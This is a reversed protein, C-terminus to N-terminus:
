SRSRQRDRLRDRLRIRNRVLNFLRPEDAELTVTVAFNQMIFSEPAWRRDCRVILYYSDGYEAKSKMFEWSSRQLTSSALVKSSPQLNCKASGQFAGQPKEGTRGYYAREQEELARYANEIEDVSKGRILAYQMRVGLYEARRRRVPPDFALSVTIRKKGNADRFEDFIPVEFIAFTDIPIAGQYYMTPRRDGSQLAFDDDIKGYGCVKRIGEKGHRPAILDQAPMPVTASAALISRVLNAQPEEGLEDRLKHWVAAATRAVLPAAMSTGNDFAFLQKTPENSLSMVSMGREVDVQKSGAFGRFSLNGASAVFEPKIADNIGLGIRTLPAPQHPRAIGLNIDNKGAGRLVEPADHEAIGGVTIPIAATAPETLGCEDRFLYEPYTTLIAEAEEPSFGFGLDHNGASIVLLVNFERALIDLCEAWISQRDSNQKWASDGGLSMNFVRCRYPDRTFVEIARRMQHIILEEDDFRNEDNLVRASYLTVPSAFSGDEYCGLVSGFVALGGVMTGHGNQDTATETTTLISEAHGINNAILPHNTAIGSDVVCVSPGDVPPRPTAPFDRETARRAQQIDFSPQTPLEIEGVIDLDLLRSLTAGKVSIRALCILQGIFTDCVRDNPDNSSQIALKLEVTAARALEVSGRHWLEVDVVYCKDSDIAEGSLGIADALRKTIRDERNWLRMQEIQIYEIADFGTSKYPQGTKPNTAPGQEYGDLVERFSTLDLEDRFAIIANDAEISVVSIGAGELLEKMQLPPASKVLPVRFVLHPQVASPPAPRRNLQGEMEDLRQRM